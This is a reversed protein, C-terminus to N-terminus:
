DHGGEPECLNPGHVPVLSVRRLRGAFWWVWVGGLAAFAAVDLLWYAPPGDHQFAPEVWWLVDVFRMALVGLAVGLLASGNEKVDRFLLLLFPAAFHFVILALGVYEWGGRMRKLYYTAEDPLDGVWVLMFQSFAFYAWFLTFTLLLGGLDRLHKPAVRGALPPHRSLLVAAATAFAFGALVQGIAYLPPYMTSTWFPELSMVWDIAAFTVTVGYAILGPGSLAPLRQGAAEVGSQWRASWARLFYALVLWVLFYGVARALVFGPNLLWTKEQLEDLVSGRAVQDLPRAWPYPSAAGFFMAAAVPVFLLALLGLTGAATELVPRLLVGWAGGTLYQIMLVVLCGLPVALCANFAVLYSTAAQTLPHPGALPTLALGVFVVAGVAAAVLATRQTRDWNVGSATPAASM